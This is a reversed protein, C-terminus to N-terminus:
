AALPNYYILSLNWQLELDTFFRFRKSKRETFSYYGIHTHKSCAEWCKLIQLADILQFGPGGVVAAYRSIAPIQRQWHPSKVFM